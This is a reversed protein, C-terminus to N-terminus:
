APRPSRGGNGARREESRRGMAVGQGDLAADLALQAMNFRRGQPLSAAPAGIARLWHQWEADPAAGQWPVTDHLLMANDLQAPSLDSSCVDSSWDRSFRTH